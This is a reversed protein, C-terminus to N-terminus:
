GGNVNIASESPYKTNHIHSVFIYFGKENGEMDHIKEEDSVIGLCTATWHLFALLPRSVRDISVIPPKGPVPVM